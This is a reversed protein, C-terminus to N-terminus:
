TSLKRQNKPRSGVSIYRSDGSSFPGFEIRHFSPNSRDVRNAKVIAVLANPRSALQSDNFKHNIIIQLEHTERGTQNPVTFVSPVYLVVVMSKYSM